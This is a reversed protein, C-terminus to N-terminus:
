NNNERRRLRMAGRAPPEVCKGGQTIDLWGSRQLQLAVERTAPMLSRWDSGGAIRAAESPCITKGPARKRLLARMAAALRNRVAEEDRPLWWARGREGLAVKADQVRSRARSLAVEDGAELASRVARRAAM